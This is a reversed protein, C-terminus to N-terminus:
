PRYVCVATRYVRVHLFAQSVCMYFSGTSNWSGQSWWRSRRLAEIAAQAQRTHLSRQSPWNYAPVPKEALLKNKAWAKLPERNLEAQSAKKPCDAKLHGHQMGDEKYYPEGCCYCYMQRKLALLHLMKEPRGDQWEAGSCGYRV